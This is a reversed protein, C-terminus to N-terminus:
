NAKRNVLNYISILFMDLNEKSIPKLYHCLQQIIERFLRFVVFLRNRELYDVM